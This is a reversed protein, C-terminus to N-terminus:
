SLHLGERWWLRELWWDKDLRLTLLGVVHELRELVSTRGVDVELLLGRM